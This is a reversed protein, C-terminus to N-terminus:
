LQESILCYLLILDIRCHKRSLNGIGMFINMLLVAQQVVSMILGWLLYFQYLHCSRSAEISKQLRAFSKEGFGPTHIIKDKYKDLRYLDGFNKVWGHDVFKGLISESIGEINMRTKDCYHVFKRILKAPCTPNKCYLWRTGGVTKKEILTSGCCPCHTPLKATGSRTLNEGLQPIIANAKYLQVRDGEGLQWRDIIDLNHLYARNVITGDIVVDDFVGTISVLGTRTTAAEFGRFVTEYLDDKWKLALIRNEHHGTAGLSAGYAIDDYEAILGDVPYKFDKPKYSAIIAKIDESSCLPSIITYPVVDFGNSKLFSFQENKYQFGKKNDILDFAIFELCRRKVDSADLKRTSGAALSRPHSYPDELDKNIRKFNEWNIIGEGRVELSAKYPISVPVNLFMRVTHTVDEGIRGNQGRTIAQKLEGNEYRLVLTLGDLKWSILSHKGCLFKVFDDLSKTKNASLMPKTHEVEALEELVEGSVKQTPSSSLVIGTDKELELLTNYLGDYALDSMIPRDYKYYAKDANNLIEIISLMDKRKKQEKM